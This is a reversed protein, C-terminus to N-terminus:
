AAKALRRRNFARRYRQAACLYRRLSQREGVAIQTFLGPAIREWEDDTMVGPQLKNNTMM